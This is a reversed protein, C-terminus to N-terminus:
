FRREIEELLSDKTDNLICDIITTFIENNFKFKVNDMVDGVSVELDMMAQLDKRKARKKSQQEIVDFKLCEEESMLTFKYDEINTLNGDEVFVCPITRELFDNSVETFNPRGLSGLYHIYRSGDILWKGYYKHFHGFYCYDYGFLVDHEELKISKLEYQDLGRLAASEVAPKCTIEQHFLGINVKGSIPPLVGSGYHNFNFVVNGDELRDTINLLGTIGKLVIRNHPLNSIGEPITSILNYFPNDKPFSLEHNGIVSYCKALKNLYTFFDFEAMAKSSDKFGRTYIDGLFLVHSRYGQKNTEIVRKLIEQKVHLCEAEYSIRNDKDGHEFQTDTIIHYANKAM